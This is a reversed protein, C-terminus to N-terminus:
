HYLLPHSQNMSTEPQSGNVALPGNCPLMYIAMFLTVIAFGQCSKPQNLMYRAQFLGVFSRELLRRLTGLDNLKMSAEELVKTFLHRNSKDKKMDTGPAKEKGGGGGESESFPEM